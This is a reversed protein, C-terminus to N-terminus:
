IALEKLFRRAQARFPGFNVAMNLWGTEIEGRQIRAYIVLDLRCDSCFAPGGCPVRKRDYRPLVIGHGWFTIPLIDAM